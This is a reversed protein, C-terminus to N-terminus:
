SQSRGQLGEQHLRSMQLRRHMWLVEIRRGKSLDMVEDLGQTATNVKNMFNSTKHFRRVRVFGWVQWFILFIVIQFSNRKSM